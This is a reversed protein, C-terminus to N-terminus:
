ADQQGFLTVLNSSNKRWKPWQKLWPIKQFNIWHYMAWIKQCIIDTIM